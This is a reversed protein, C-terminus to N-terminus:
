AWRRVVTVQIRGHHAYALDNLSLFHGARWHVWAVRGDGASPKVEWASDKSAAVSCVFGDRSRQDPFRAVTPAAWGGTPDGAVAKKRHAVVVRVTSSPSPAPVGELPTM